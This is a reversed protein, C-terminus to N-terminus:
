DKVIKTVTQRLWEVFPKTMGDPSQSSSGENLKNAYPYDAVIASGNRRTRRRANGSQKPTFEKFKELAQEPLAQIESKLERMNREIGNSLQVLRTRM